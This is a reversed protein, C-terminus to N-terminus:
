EFDSLQPKKRNRAIEQSKQSKPLFPDHLPRSPGTPTDFQSAKAIALETEHTYYPDATTHKKKEGKREGKSHFRITIDKKSTQGAETKSTKKQHIVRRLSSFSTKFSVFQVSIFCWVFQLPTNLNSLICKILWILNIKMKQKVKSRNRNNWKTLNILERCEIYGGHRKWM